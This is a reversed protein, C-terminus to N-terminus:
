GAIQLGCKDQCIACIITLSLVRAEFCVDTKSLWVLCLTHERASFKYERSSLASVLDIEDCQWCIVQAMDCM